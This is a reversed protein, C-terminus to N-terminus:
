QRWRVGVRAVDINYDGNAATTAFMVHDYRGFVTWERNLFYEAGLSLTTERETLGVGQYDAVNYKIGATAILNRRFAHRAELGFQRVVSGSQGVTTSDNFDTKATALLSTLASVRLGVNAEVLLGSTTDLIGADPRQAGYGIGVTGRLRTDVSGFSVGTIVRLGRSDRSIGDSPATKYSRDNAGVEAFALLTPKFEWSARAATDRQVVDKQSNSLTGGGIAEVPQYDSETVGGRLQVSLRNFRHNLAIAAKTTLVDPREAASGIANRAERSEQDRAHSVLAEINTRKSLDYRGRAEVAYARDNESAFESFSSALGTAKLEIAHVRWNTVARVTPRVDFFTSSDRSPARFVNSTFGMGAEIEPFIVWSGKRIGIPDFPEFRALRAPRRDLIPDIDDIQFAIADYGAPPNEFAAVDSKLRADGDLSPEGDRPAADAEGSPVIGDQQAPAELGDASMGDGNRRAGASQPDDGDQPDGAAADDGAVEGEAPPRAIRVAPQGWQTTEDDDATAPGPLRRLPEAKRQPLPSIQTPSTSQASAPTTRFAIGILSASCFGVLFWAIQRRGIVRTDKLCSHAPLRVRSLRLGCVLSLSSLLDNLNTKFPALLAHVARRDQYRPRQVAHHM